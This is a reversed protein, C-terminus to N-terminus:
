CKGKLQPNNWDADYFHDYREILGQGGLWHVFFLLGLSARHHRQVHAGPHGPPGRHLRRRFRRPHAARDVGALLAQENATRCCLPACRIAAPTSTRPTGAPGARVTLVCRSGLLPLRAAYWGNGQPGLMRNWETCHRM